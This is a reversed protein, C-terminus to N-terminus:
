LSHLPCTKKGWSLNNVNDMAALFRGELCVKSSKGEETKRIQHKQIRTNKLLPYFPKSGNYM